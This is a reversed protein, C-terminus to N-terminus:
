NADGFRSLLVPKIISTWVAYGEANMHLGDWRFLEARPKGQADLMSPDVDIFQVRPQSRIYEAILDNTKKFKQRNGWRGSPASTV